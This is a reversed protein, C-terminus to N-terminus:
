QKLLAFNIKEEIRWDKANKLASRLVEQSPCHNQLLWDVMPGHGFLSSICLPYEGLDDTTMGFTLVLWKLAELNGTACTQRMAYWGGAQVEERSWPDIQHRRKVTRLDQDFVREGQVMTAMKRKLPARRRWLSLAAPCAMDRKWDHNLRSAHSLDRLELFSAIHVKEHRPLM